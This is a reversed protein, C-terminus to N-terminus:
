PRAAIRAHVQGADAVRGPFLIGSVFHGSVFRAAKEPRCTPVM